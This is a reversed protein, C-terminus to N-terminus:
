FLPAKVTQLNLSSPAVQCSFFPPPTQHSPPSVGICVICTVQHYIIFIERTETNKFTTTELVQQCCLSYMPTHHNNLFTHSIKPQKKNHKNRYTTKHKYKKPFAIMPQVNNLIEKFTIDISM